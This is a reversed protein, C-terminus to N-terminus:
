PKLPMGVARGRFPANFHTQVQVANTVENVEPCYWLDTGQPVPAGTAPVTFVRMPLETSSLRYLRGAGAVFGTTGGRGPNGEKHAVVKHRGPPVAIENEPMRGAINMRTDDVATVVQGPPVLLLAFQTVSQPEGGIVYTRNPATACGAFQLALCSALILLSRPM